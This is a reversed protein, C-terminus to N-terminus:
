NASFPTVWNFNRKRSAEPKSEEPKAEPKSEEPKSEPKTAAEEKKRKAEKILDEIKKSAKSSLADFLEKARKDLNEDDLIWLLIDISRSFTQIGQKNDIDKAHFLCEGFAVVLNQIDNKTKM